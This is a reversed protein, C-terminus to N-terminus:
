KRIIKNILRCIISSLIIKRFKLDVVQYNESENYTHIGIWKGKNYHIDNINIIKFIKESYKENEIKFESFVLGSGYEKECNQSVRIYRDKYKLIKGAPRATSNDTNIPNCDLFKLKNNEMSFLLLKKITESIDYTFGYKKNNYLFLVTDVFEVNKMYLTDKIWQNPFRVAKYRYFEKNESSEVYMYIENNEFYINPFSLHYKESIIKKWKTPKGNIIECYAISGKYRDYTYMEAFIYVKDEFEIVFPDAVWSGFNNNIVSYIKDSKRKIAVNWGKTFLKNMM